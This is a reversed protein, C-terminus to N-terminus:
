SRFREITEREFLDTSCEVYGRLEGESESLSVTLDFKATEVEVELLEVELGSMQMPPLPANQLAFMVQFLPSQSLRREVGLEEVMREFPVEQHAYGGLCVERVRKLTEAFSEEGAVRLRLPLTNVFFGILSEVERRGRNAVPTGVVVDGEGTYRWLLVAFGALLTMFLTVGEARSLEKLARTLDEGLRVSERAGRFSQVAPRPRDAPLELLAPAGALQERWYQLQQELMEGVLHERQWQAYDAYQVRLPALPSEGGQSFAEYLACLERVLVGMSWGDSVIHHMTLLLVHEREGLRLLRARLLPGAELDFPRAAEERALQRVEAEWEEAAPAEVATSVISITLSSRIWQVPQGDVVSFVTRLTEHRAIIENLSQELATLNLAGRLRLAGPINYATVGPQLQDLFWLRQQAFSLPLAYVDETLFDPDGEYVMEIPYSGNDSM